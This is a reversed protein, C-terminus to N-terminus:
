AGEVTPPIQTAEVVQTTLAEVRRPDLQCPPVQLIAALQKLHAFSPTLVGREWRNVTQLTVGVLTALENQTLHCAKRATTLAILAGPRRSM